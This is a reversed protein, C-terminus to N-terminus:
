DKRLAIVPDLRTARVIPALSAALTMGILLAMTPGIIAPNMFSNPGSQGGGFARDFAYTCIVGAALGVALQRLARRLVLWAVQRTDRASRSASASKRRASRSRTRRSPTSAWRPWRRVRDARDDDASQRSLRPNWGAEDIVQAMTRVRYVPLDPDLARVEERLLPALAEPATTSRVIIAASAPPDAGAPLYVIPDPAVAMRQRLVPAIGVITLWPAAEAATVASAAAGAGAAVRRREPAAARQDSTLRIRRGIPDGDRLFLEVFRQNVIVHPSEPTGDRWTFSRGRLVPRGLTEFYRAGVTTTFM